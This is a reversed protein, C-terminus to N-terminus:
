NFKLWFDKAKTAIVHKQEYGVIVGTIVANGAITAVTNPNLKAPQQAAIAENLNRIHNAVKEYADKNNVPDITCIQALAFDLAEQNATPSKPQRNFKFM